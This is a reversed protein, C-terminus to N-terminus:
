GLTKVLGVIFIAANQPIFIRSRRNPIKSIKHLQHLLQFLFKLSQTYAVHIKKFLVRGLFGQRNLRALNPTYGSFHM